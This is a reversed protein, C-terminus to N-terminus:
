GFAEQYRRWQARQMEQRGADGMPPAASATIFQRDAELSRTEDGALVWEGSDLEVSESFLTLDVEIVLTARGVLRNRQQLGLVPDVVQEEIYDLTIVLEVSVSVLGLVSLSGGIRLFASLSVAGDALEFRIGGLAHVEGSAVLFDVAVAAGFEMSAELGTLGKPGITFDIYGGGGFMLVSLNFPNDRRAFGLSVTVPKRRFPVDVGIHIAVNRMAFVGSSVSPVTLTYDATVGDTTARIAPGGSGVLSSVKDLLPKLLKLAGFFSVNLGGMAMDPMKGPALTLALTRFDLRVLPSAEPIALAFDDIRCVTESIPASRIVTLDMKGNPGAKFMGSSRLPLAWKMKVGSPITGNLIPVIEPTGPLDPLTGAVLDRMSLGLLTTDNLVSSLDSGFDPLAAKAIPGLDPSIVDAVFNPVVLGGSRDANDQFDIGVPVRPRLAIAAELGRDLFDETFELPVLGIKEPLLARLAPLEALVQDIVARFGDGHPVAAFNMQHVEHVDGPRQVVARVLDIRQGDLPVIGSTGWMDHVRSLIDDNSLARFGFFEETDPIDIDRIFVAKVTFRIDGNTGAARVPLVLADASVTKPAFFVPHSAHTAAIADLRAQIEISALAAPDGLAALANIDRPLMAFEQEVDAQAQARSAGASAIEAEKARILAFLQAPIFGSDSMIPMDPFVPRDSGIVDAEIFEPPPPPPDVPPDPPISAILDALESQLQALIGDWSNLIPVSGMQLEFYEALSRPQAFLTEFVQRKFETLNSRLKELFESNQAQTHTEWNPEAIEFQSGMIEIADFPLRRALRPDSAPGVVPQLVSLITHGRLGAVAREQSGRVPAFGRVASEVVRARHGFPYLVGTTVVQVNMDRGLVTNHTWDFDPRSLGTMLSGGLASLEMNKLWPLAGGGTQALAVIGGRHAASLPSFGPIEEGPMLDALPLLSLAAEGRIPNLSRLRARWLGTTRDASSVPFAACEVGLRSEGDSALISSVLRWPLEIRTPADPTANGGQLETDVDGLAALIGEITLSIERTAPPRFTLVSPGSLRAGPDRLPEGQILNELESASFKGEGVAQPPFTLSITADATRPVLRSPVGPAVDYGAWSVGLVVLDDSRTLLYQPLLM